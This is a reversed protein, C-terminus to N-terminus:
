HYIVTKQKNEEIETLKKYGEEFIEQNRTKIAFYSKALAIVEKRPDCNLTIVYCAYRLLKYDQQTRKAGSGIEVM